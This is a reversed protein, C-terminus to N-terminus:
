GLLLVVGKVSESNIGHRRNNSVVNNIVERRM